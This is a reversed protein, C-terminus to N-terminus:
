LFGSGCLIGLSLRMTEMVVFANAPKSKSNILWNMQIMAPSAALAVSSPRGFVRPIPLRPRPRFRPRRRLSRCGGLSFCDRALDSNCANGPTSRKPSTQTAEWIETGSNEILIGDELRMTPDLHSSSSPLPFLQAHPYPLDNRRGAAPRIQTPLCQHSSRGSPNRGPHKHQKTRSFSTPMTAPM